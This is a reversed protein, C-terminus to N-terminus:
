KSASRCTHRLACSADAILMLALLLLLLLLLLLPGWASSLSLLGVRNSRVHEAAMNRSGSDSPSYLHFASNSLQM